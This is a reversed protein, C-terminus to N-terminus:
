LTHLAEVPEVQGAKWAPYIGVVLILVFVASLTFVFHFAAINMMLSPEFFFGGVSSSSLELEIPHRKLIANELWGLVAGAATGVAGLMACEILVLAMLRLRSMGISLLVGFEYTREMVSMLVTNLVGALIVLFLLVQFVYNFANDVKIYDALDKLVQQWPVVVAGTSALAGSSELATTVQEMQSKDTLYIGLQTVEGPAMGLMKQAKALTIQFYFGDLMPSSTRFIGAVRFLEQVTEGDRDQTTLVVKGGLKVKLKRVVESGVIIDSGSELYHGEVIKNALLSVERDLEPQVADFGGGVTGYSSSLIGPGSIRLSYGEVSPQGTILDILDDGAVLSNELDQDDRYDPSEVVLHGSGLRTAMSIIRGYMGDSLGTFFICLAVGIAISLATILTRRKRRWLNRWALRILM